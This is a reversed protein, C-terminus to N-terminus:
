KQTAPAWVTSGDELCMLLLQILLLTAPEHVLVLTHISTGLLSRVEQVVVGVGLSLYLCVSLSSTYAMITKLSGFKM